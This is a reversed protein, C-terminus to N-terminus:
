EAERRVAGDLLVCAAANLTIGKHRAYEAIRAKLHGPVRLNLAERKETM